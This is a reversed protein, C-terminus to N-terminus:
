INGGLTMELLGMARREKKLWKELGKVKIERWIFIDESEVSHRTKKNVCKIM